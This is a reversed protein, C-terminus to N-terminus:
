SPPDGRGAEGLAVGLTAAAPCLSLNGRPASLLSGAAQLRGTSAEIRRPHGRGRVGKGEPEAWWSWTFWGAGVTWGPWVRAGAGQGTRLVTMQVSSPSLLSHQSVPLRLPVCPVQLPNLPSSIAPFQLETALDLSHSQSWSSLSLTLTLVPSLVMELWRPTLDQSQEPWDLISDSDSTVKSKSTSRSNWPCKFVRPM